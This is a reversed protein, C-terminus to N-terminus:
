HFATKLQLRHFVMRLRFFAAGCILSKSSSKLLIRRIYNYQKRILKKFEGDSLEHYMAVGEEYLCEYILDCYDDDEQHM